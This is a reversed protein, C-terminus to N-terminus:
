LKKGCYMCYKSEEDIKKGCHKCYVKNNSSLGEKIAKATVEIYEKNINAERKAMDKLTDENEDLINKKINVGVNGATTGMSKLDEKADDLMYKTAKIQKSMWKGRAKPSIAMTIGFAMIIVMIVPVIVFMADFLGNFMLFM